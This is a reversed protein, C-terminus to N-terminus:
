NKQSISAFIEKDAEFGYIPKNTQKEKERRKKGVIIEWLM